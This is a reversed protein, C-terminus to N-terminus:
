PKPVVISKNQNPNEKFVKIEQKSNVWRSGRIWKCTKKHRAWDVKQCDSGCYQATKCSGCRQLTKEVSADANCGACSGNKPYVTDDYNEEDPPGERPAMTMMGLLDGHGRAQKGCPGNMRCVGHIYATLRPGPSPRGMWGPEGKAPLHLHSATTMYNERADEKGCFECKIRYGSKMDRMVKALRIQTYPTLKDPKGIMFPDDIPIAIDYEMRTDDYGYIFAEITVVPKEKEAM